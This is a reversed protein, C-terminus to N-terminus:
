LPTVREHTKEPDDQDDHEDKENEAEEAASAPLGVLVKLAHSYAARGKGPPRM